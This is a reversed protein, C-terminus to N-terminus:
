SWQEIIPANQLLKYFNCKGSYDAGNNKHKILDFKSLFAEKYKDKINPLTLKRMGKGDPFIGKPTRRWGDQFYYKEESLMDEPAKVWLNFGDYSDKM